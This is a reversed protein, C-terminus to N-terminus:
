IRGGTAVVLLTEGGLLRVGVDKNVLYALYRPFGALRTKFGRTPASFAANTYKWYSISFGMESLLSLAVEKTFYHMHGVRKRVDLLPQERLVSLASLDLPIHFIFHDARDRIACLFNFPDALHEIVDLLLICDYHNSNESIFDGVHFEIGESDSNVWFRRVDEAIDYGTFSCFSYVKRLERLVGGAGCGIECVSRPAVQLTGLAAKVLTAKWASDAMDWAPNANLYAGDSYRKEIVNSKM